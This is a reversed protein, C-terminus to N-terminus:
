SKWKLNFFDSIKSLWLEVFFFYFFYFTPYFVIQFDWLFGHKMLGPCNAFFWNMHFIPETSKSSLLLDWFPESLTLNIMTHGRKQGMQLLPRYVDLSHLGRRGYNQSSFFEGMSTPHLMKWKITKGFKLPNKKNAQKNTKQVEPLGWASGEGEAFYHQQSPHLTQKRTTKGFHQELFQIYREASITGKEMRSSGVGCANHLGRVHLCSPEPDCNGFLIEDKPWVSSLKFFFNRM